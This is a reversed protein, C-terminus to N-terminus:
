EDEALMNTLIDIADIVLNPCLDFVRGTEFAKQREEPNSFDYGLLDRCNLHERRKKWEDQFQKIKAVCLTDQEVNGQEDNGYKMGIVMYAGAVSGCLDGVFGGGGFPNAIRRLEDKDYGLQEAFEGVVVQSCHIKGKFLELVQDKTLM